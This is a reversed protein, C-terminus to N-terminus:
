QIAGSETPSLVVYLGAGQRDIRLLVDGKAEASLQDFDKTNKVTRHDIEEIVDGARLGEQAAPTSPDLATIVVGVEDTPLGLRRRVANTLDEVTIGELTGTKPGQGTGAKAAVTEPRTGLTVRIDMARGDRLIGLTVESGPTAETTMSVLQGESDVAKGNFTRIVDGQKMGAKDAPSGAEVDNVLAGAIDPVHFEHALKDTLDGVTVGLYGRVVKGNNILSEVVHRVINAPIALGVGNFGAQGDQAGPSVIATNIGVVKGHIDVLAGGSNGPNIAADTQIFDEYSEIGLGSRSIGSVIGRTVTFNLGFPTGFALVADGVKLGSSEGWSATPLDKGEIKLVAVDTQPDTGIVKGQFVRHDAMQVEIESAKALVHNNTVIYGDQSIIVGSGLAHERLNKPINYQQFMNGFFQRFFPDNFFPSQHVQIVQTTQINVIAPTVAQAIQEYAHNQAELAQIDPGDLPTGEALAFHHSGLHGSLYLALLIAFVVMSGFTMVRKRPERVQPREDKRLM